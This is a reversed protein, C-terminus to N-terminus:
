RTSGAVAAALPGRFTIEDPIPRYGLAANIARMPGNDPDNGTEIRELGAGIAWDIAARKLAKAVGRGRWERRVATMDNWAVTSSGPAFLLSAYGIVSGTAEDLAVVFGDPPIAPRDVDRARFEQLSGASVPEGGTPIDAFTEIAVAHVGAVLDPRDALAVISVGAPPDGASRGLGGLELALMKHRDYEAFGRHELFAIAEPRSESAPAHFARKGAASALESAAEYLANGIGRRRQDPLVEISLWWADFDPGFMFIRGVSAAGVAAGDDEALLRGGGPYTADQWRLEDTSIPAEPTVANVIGVLIPYDDPQTRRISVM